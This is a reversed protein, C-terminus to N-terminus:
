VCFLYGTSALINRKLFILDSSNEDHPRLDLKEALPRVKSAWQPATELPVKMPDQGEIQTGDRQLGLELRWNFASVLAEAFSALLAYRTPDPDMPDPIRSLQWRAETHYFYYDCEYSMMIINKSCLDEYLRYLSRLPTDRVRFLPIYYLQLIDPQRSSSIQDGTNQLETLSLRVPVQFHWPSPWLLRLLLKRRCSCRRLRNFSARLKLPSPGPFM